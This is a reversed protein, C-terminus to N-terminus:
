ALGDVFGRLDTLDAAAKADAAAEDLKKQAAVAAAQQATTDAANSEQTARDAAAKDAVLADVKARLQQLEQDTIPM